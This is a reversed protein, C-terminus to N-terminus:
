RLIYEKREAIFEPLSFGCESALAKLDKYIPVDEQGLFSICTGDISRGTRGARHVFTDIERPFDYNIVLDVNKFDIGRGAVDTCVLYRIRGDMVKKIVGERYESPKKGHLVVLNCFKQELNECTKIRNCFVLMIKDPSRYRSMIDQMALNKCAPNLFELKIRPNIRNVKGLIIFQKIGLSTIKPTKTASFFQSAKPKLQKWIAKFDEYFGDSLMKDVEDVVLYDISKFDITRFSLHDILRGITSIIVNSKNVSSRQKEFSSSGTILIPNTHYNTFEFYIQDALEKTPVIVLLVSKESLIQAYPLVFSLTKGSGTESLVCVSEEALIYPISQMQIPKMTKFPINDLIENRFGCDIWKSFMDLTKQNSLITINYKERLLASKDKSAKESTELEVLKKSLKRNLNEIKESLLDKKLKTYNDFRDNRGM